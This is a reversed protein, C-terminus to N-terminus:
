TLHSTKPPPPPTATLCTISNSAAGGTSSTPCTSSHGTDHTTSYHVDQGHGSSIFVLTAKGFTLLQECIMFRIYNLKV